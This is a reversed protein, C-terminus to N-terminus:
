TNKNAARPHQKASRCRTPLIASFCIKEPRTLTPGFRRVNGFANVATM